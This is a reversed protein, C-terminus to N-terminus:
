CGGSEIGGGRTHDMGGYQIGGWDDGHGPWRRLHLRRVIGQAVCHRRPEPDDAGPCLFTHGVTAKELRRTPACRVRKVLLGYLVEHDISPFFKSIDAKLVYRHAAIL